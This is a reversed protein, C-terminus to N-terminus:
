MMRHHLDSMIWLSGGVMIAILVVAFALAALQERPTERPDLGLFCRLHIGVQLLAAVAIVAAATAGSAAGSWVVWFPITTLVLALALGLLLPRIGARM